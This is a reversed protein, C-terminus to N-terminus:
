FHPRRAEFVLAFGRVGDVGRGSYMLLSVGVARVQPRSTTLVMLFGPRLEGTCLLVANLASRANESMTGKRRDGLAAEAEDMVVVVGKGRRGGGRGPRRLGGGGGVVGGGAWTMLGSLEASATRGLSGVDGGAVVVTNLGCMTAMRRALVSKGSGPAGHILVHPLPAGRSYSSRNPVVIQSLITDLASLTPLSFTPRYAFTSSGSNANRTHPTKKQRKSLTTSAIM